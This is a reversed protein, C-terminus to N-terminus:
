RIYPYQWVRPTETKGRIKSIENLAWGASFAGYLNALRASLQVAPTDPNNLVTLLQDTSLNTDVCSPEVVPAPEGITEDDVRSWKTQNDNRMPMIIAFTDGGLNVGLSKEYGNEPAFYLNVTEIRADRKPTAEKDSPYANLVDLLYTYDLWFYLYQRSPNSVGTIRVEKDGLESNYRYVRMETTDTASRLVEIQIIGTNTTYPKVVLVAQKLASVSVTVKLRTAPDPIVGDVNPFKGEITAPDIGKRAFQTVEHTTAHLRTGDASVFYTQNNHEVQWVKCFIPRARNTSTALLMFKTPDVPFATRKVKKTKPASVSASAPATEESADLPAVTDFEACGLVDVAYAHGAPTLTYYWSGDNDTALGLRVLSRITNTAISNQNSNERLARIAKEQAATLKVAKVPEVEIANVVVLQYQMGNPLSVQFDMYQSAIPNIFWKSLVKGNLEVKIKGYETQMYGMVAVVAEELTNHNSTVTELSDATVIYTQANM